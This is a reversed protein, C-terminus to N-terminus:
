RNMMIRRDILTILHAAELLNEMIYHPMRNPSLVWETENGNDILVTKCGARRGAEVDNLIDGIFWSQKLDINLEHAALFLLGPAPKRCTCAMAYDPIGDPLHPCYYFGALSVGFGAMCHRIHMEVNRLDEESFYGRAIGSQNTIIVLRYGAVDLLQLADRVGPVFRIHRPDINYPVDEIITGDKDLFIAQAMNFILAM